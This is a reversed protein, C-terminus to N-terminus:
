KAFFFFINLAALGWISAEMILNYTVARSGDERLLAIGHQAAGSFWAMTRSLIAIGGFIVSIWALFSPLYGFLFFLGSVITILLLLPLFLM